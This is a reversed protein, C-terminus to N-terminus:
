CNVYTNVVFVAVGKPLAFREGVSQSGGNMSDGYEVIVEYEIYKQGEEFGYFVTDIKATHTHLPFKTFPTAINRSEKGHENGHENFVNTIVKGPSLIKISLNVEGTLKEEIKHHHELINPSTM